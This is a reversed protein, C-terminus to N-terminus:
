SRPVLLRHDPQLRLRARTGAALATIRGGPLVADHDALYADVRDRLSQGPHGALHDRADFRAFPRLWWPLSPLEDLDVYWSYSRYEFSHQVPAQRDHTITTHYIAPTLM